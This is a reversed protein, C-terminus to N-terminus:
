LPRELAEALDLRNAVDLKRYSAKLHTRVTHPSMALTDAIERIYAGAAAYEAVRRQTASLLSAGVRVIAEPASVTVIYRVAGTPAELRGISLGPVVYGEDHRRVAQQLRERMEGLELWAKGEPSCALVTGEEDLLVQGPRLCHMQVRLRRARRLLPQLRRARERLCAKDRLSFSPSGVKRALGVYAAYATGDLIHLRLIDHLGYPAM